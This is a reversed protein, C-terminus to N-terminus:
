RQCIFAPEMQLLFFCQSSIMIIACVTVNPVQTLCFVAGQTNLVLKLTRQHIRYQSPNLLRKQPQSQFPQSGFICSETKPFRKEQMGKPGSLSAEHWHLKLDWLLYSDTQQKRSNNFKCAKSVDMRFSASTLCQPFDIIARCSFELQKHPNTKCQFTELPMEKLASFAVRTWIEPTEVPCIDMMTQLYILSSKYYLYKIMESASWLLYGSAIRVSLCPSVIFRWWM